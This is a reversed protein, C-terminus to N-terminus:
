NGTKKRARTKNLQALPRRRLRESLSSALRQERFGIGERSLSSDALVGKMVELCAKESGVALGMAASTKLSLWEWYELPQGTERKWDIAGGPLAQTAASQTFPDSDRPLTEQRALDVTTEAIQIIIEGVAGHPLGHALDHDEVLNTIKWIIQQAAALVNFQTDEAIIECPPDTKAM